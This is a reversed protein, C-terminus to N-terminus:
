PNPVDAVAENSPASSGGSDVAEVYYYYNVGPTVGTDTYTLSTIASPNVPTTGEGGSSTGRFVNYTVGQTPSAGWTLVVSHTGTGSLSINLPSNTANSAISVSAGSVAGGSTPAFTVTLTASQGATLVTGNAIGSASFGAGAATVGSITVNSNGNNTISTTLSSNSQDLVNGFALSAPSAGLLMTATQGTGSLNIVVSSPSGNTTITIAGSSGTATSPDFTASFTTSAGAALTTNTSLGTQGFGSGTVVIQSITLTTNGNNKLTVTQSDTNGIGVSGFAITSPTAAGQAQLGTGSLQITTPSTPANSVITITGTASGAATPTFTVTFPTNSGASIATPALNMTFAGTSITASTINLTANGTNTLTVSQTANGGVNVGSSFTVPFPNVSIQAQTAVSTGSLPIVLPSGQANSSISVNGTWSGNSTPAFTVTFTATGGPTLTQAALTSMRFSTGSASAGSISVNATGTDTLTVNVTSTNGTILSGFNISSPNASLLGQIGTGSLSVVLPSNTANSTITITGAVTGASTPAFQATMTANGGAAITQNAALGTESFGAGGSTVGSITIPSAGSNSITIPQTGTSGVQVNGFNFSGPNASLTSGAGVASGTVVLSQPSDPANDVFKISGSTGSTSTPAFSITFNVSTNPAITVPLAGPLGGSIGIQPGPTTVSAIILNANGTNTFVGNQTAVQGVPVNNFNMASPNLSAIAQGGGGTLPVSLTSNTANSTVTLMGNAAGAVTPAFQVEVSASQGIALSSSPNGGIVTFVGGTISAASISVAGTGTNTIVVSQTATSGVAVNGFLLTTVNPTLIGGGSNGVGGGSESTSASTYGACNALSISVIVVLIACLLSLFGCREGERREGRPLHSVLSTRM